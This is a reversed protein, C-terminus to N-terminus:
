FRNRSGKGNPADDIGLHNHLKEIVARKLQGVRSCNIDMKEAMESESVVKDVLRHVLYERERPTLHKLARLVSKKHRSAEEKRALRQEPNMRSDSIVDAASRSDDEGLTADLSIKPLGTGLARRMEDIIQQKTEPMLNKGDIFEAFALADDPKDASTLKEWEKRIEKFKKRSHRTLHDEARVHDLIASRVKIAVYQRFPLGRAPDFTMAAKVLAINAIGEFEDMNPQRMLKAHHWALKRVEPM